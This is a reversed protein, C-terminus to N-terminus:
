KWPVGAHFPNGVKFRWPLYVGSAAFPAGKGLRWLPPTGVRYPNGADACVETPADWRGTLEQPVQVFSAKGTETRAFGAMGGLPGQVNRTVPDFTLSPSAGRVQASLHDAATGAQLSAMYAQKVPFYPTGEPAAADGVAYVDPYGAVQGTQVHTTIFGREDAPLSGFHTSAGQPPFALLLDFPLREGNQYAVEGKEVHDVVYSRHGGINRLSFEEAVLNHLRAGFVELYAIECTSWTIDVQRRVQKRRLWTDLLMAMEYLPGSCWNNPPVLFLVRQQKGEKAELVLKHLATRLELMQGSTWATLGFEDLGPIEEPRASTGTAVVLYDYAMKHDHNSSNGDDLYVLGSIPDIERAVSRVLKINRRKTPRALHLKLKAPDLGFPIYITNPKFLFHDQDSILTIEADERVRQKVSLAAELGGFGGGLVVVRPRAIKV